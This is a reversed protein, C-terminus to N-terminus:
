SGSYDWVWPTKHIIFSFTQSQVRCIWTVVKTIIASLLPSGMREALTSTTFSTTEACATAQVRM